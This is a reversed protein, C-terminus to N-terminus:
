PMRPPASFGSKNVREVIKYVPTAFLPEASKMKHLLVNGNRTITIFM